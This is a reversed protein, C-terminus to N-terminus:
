AVKRVASKAVVVRLWHPSKYPRDSKAIPITLFEGDAFYTYPVTRQYHIKGEVILANLASILGESVGNWIWLNKDLEIPASGRARPLYKCIEAFSLHDGRWDLLRLLDSKIDNTYEFDREM